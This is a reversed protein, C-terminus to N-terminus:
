SRSFINIALTARNEQLLVDIQDNVAIALQIGLWVLQVVMVPWSMRLLTTQTSARFGFGFGHLITPSFYRPAGTKKRQNGMMPSRKQTFSIRNIQQPLRKPIHHLSMRKLNIRRHNQRLVKM